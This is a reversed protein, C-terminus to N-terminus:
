IEKLVQQISIFGVIFYLVHSMNTFGVLGM